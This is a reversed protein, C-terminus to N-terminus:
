YVNIVCFTDKTIKSYIVEMAILSVENGESSKVILKDGNIIKVDDRNITIKKGEFECPVDEEYERKDNDYFSVFHRESEFWLM